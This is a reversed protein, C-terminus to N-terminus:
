RECGLQCTRDQDWIIRGFPDLQNRVLMDYPNLHDDIAGESDLVEALRDLRLFNLGGSM